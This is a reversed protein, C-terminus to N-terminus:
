NDRQRVPTLFAKEPHRTKLRWLATHPKIGFHRSLQSITGTIGNVTFKRNRRTNSSQQQATAWRCNGPEYNGNVDIRDLSTGNPRFGMDELFHPFSNLWRECVTIGRGGYHKWQYYNPNTCRDKIHCWCRYEPTRKGKGNHGHKTHTCGCSRSRGCTLSATVIEITRGCLCICKWYRQKHGCPQTRTPAEEIVKLKGFFQGILSLKASM